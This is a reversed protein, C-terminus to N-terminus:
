DIDSESSTYTETENQTSYLQKASFSYQQTLQPPVASAEVAIVRRKNRELLDSQDLSNSVIRKRKGCITSSDKSYGSGNADVTMTKTKTNTNTASSTSQDGNYAIWPHSAMASCKSVAIDTTRQM